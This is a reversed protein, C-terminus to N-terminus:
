VESTSEASTTTSDVNNANFHKLLEDLKATGGASPAAFVPLGEESL